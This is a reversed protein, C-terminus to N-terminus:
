NPYTQPVPTQDPRISRAWWLIFLPFLFNHIVLLVLTVAVPQHPARDHVFLQDGMGSNQSFGVFPTFNVSYHIAVPVWISGSRVFAFALAYGMLGTTLFLVTAQMPSQIGVTFFHYIGFAIASTLIARAAGVRRVLIYLLAGRFTLEEFVVSKLLYWLAPGLQRIGYAENRRYPTHLVAAEGLQYAILYLMALFFGAGALQLRRTTPRIGLAELNRHELFHLLIWSLLLQVLMGIM